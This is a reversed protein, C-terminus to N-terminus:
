SGKQSCKKVCSLITRIQANFWINSLRSWQLDPGICSKDLRVWGPVGFHGALSELVHTWIREHERSGMLRFGLEYLPDNSRAFGKVQAVVSGYEEYSSFSVWGSEPHGQPTMLAFSREDAYVVWVGTSIFGAPTHANILVVEGPAIGSRSPFFHNQPPQFKPLHQKFVKIVEEPSAKVGALRVRFTKEWLQGFGQIPGVPKLGHVNLNIAGEPVDGLTIRDIPKAWTSFKGTDYSSVDKLSTDDQSLFAEDIRTTRFIDLLEQGLGAAVLRKGRTGARLILKILENVGFIDIHKLESFDLVIEPGAEAMTYADSLAGSVTSSMVGGLLIRGDRTNIHFTDQVTDQCM